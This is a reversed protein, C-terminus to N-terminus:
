SVVLRAAGAAATCVRAKHTRKACYMATDANNVLAQTDAADDPFLSLGVSASVEISRDGLVFADGLALVIRQMLVGAQEADADETIVAFEDGGWRCVTDATRVCLSLRAAVQKLLYDGAAHGYTDNLAKFNDLDIFILALPNGTRTAREVAHDLRDTFVRRNSLGTLADQGALHELEAQQSVMDAIRENQMKLVREIERRRRLESELANARQQLLAITRHLADPEHNADLREIPNVHSHAACICQFAHRHGDDPFASLPYACLLDFRYHQALNEWLQELRVAAQRNGEAYLVAVMEGFASVQRSSNHSVQRMLGGVVENFRREDPMGDVMFTALTECADLFVSNDAGSRQAGGTGHRRMAQIAERHEHTAIVIVGDGARWAPEFFEFVTKVLFADSDYFQVRHNSM